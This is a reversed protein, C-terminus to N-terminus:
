GADRGHAAHLPAQAHDASRRRPAARSRRSSLTNQGDLLGQGGRLAPEKQRSGRGARLRPLVADPRAEGMEPFAYWGAIDKLLIGFSFADAILMDMKIHLRVTEADLRTARIALVPARDLPLVEHSLGNTKAELAKKKEEAGLGSADEVVIHCPPVEELVRQRGDDTFVCRLMDHRAITKNLAKELRTSDPNRFDLEAYACCSVGGLPMEEGRGLWYAHQVDTLPFPKFRDQPAPVIVAEKTRDAPAM